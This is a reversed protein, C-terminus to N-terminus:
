YGNRVEEVSKVESIDLLVRLGFKDSFILSDGMCQLNSTNYRLNSKTVILIRKGEFIRFRESESAM